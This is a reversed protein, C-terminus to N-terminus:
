FRRGPVFPLRDSREWPAPEPLVAVLADPWVATGRRAFPLIGISTQDSTDVSEVALAPEDRLASAPCPPASAANDCQFMCPVSLGIDGDPVRGPNAFPLGQLSGPADDGAAAPVIRHLVVWASSLAVFRPRVSPSRGMWRILSGASSRAPAAHFQLPDCARMWEPFAEAVLHVTTGSALLNTAVGRLSFRLWEDNEPSLTGALLVVDFPVPAVGRPWAAYVQSLPQKAPKRGCAIAAAYAVAVTGYRAAKQCASWHSSRAVLADTQRLLAALTEPGETEIWRRMEPTVKSEPATAGRCSM